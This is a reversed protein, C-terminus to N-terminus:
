LRVEAGRAIQEHLQKRSSSCGVRLVASIRGRGTEDACIRLRRTQGPELHGSFVKHGDCVLDRIEVGRKVAADNNVTIVITDQAAAASAFLFGLIVGAIRMSKERWGKDVM